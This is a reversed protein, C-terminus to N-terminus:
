GNRHLSEVLQSCEGIGIDNTQGLLPPFEREALKHAAVFARDKREYVPHNSVAFQGFVERLIGEHLHEVVDVLVARLELKGAPQELDRVIHGDIM